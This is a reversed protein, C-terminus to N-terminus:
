GLLFCLQQQLPSGLVGLSAVLLKLLLSCPSSMLKALLFKAQLSLSPQLLPEM